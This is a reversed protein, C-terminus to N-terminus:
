HFAKDKIRSLRLVEMLTATGEQVYMQSKYLASKVREKDQNSFHKFLPLYHYIAETAQGFDTDRCLVYHTIEHALTM